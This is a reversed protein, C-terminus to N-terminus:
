VSWRSSTSSVAFNVTRHSVAWRSVSSKDSRQCIDFNILPQCIHCITIVCTFQTWSNLQTCIGSRTHLTCKCSVQRYGPFWESLSWSNYLIAVSTYVTFLVRKKEVRCGGTEAVWKRGAEEWHSKLSKFLSKDAPQLWHTSHPPLCIVEVDNEKM